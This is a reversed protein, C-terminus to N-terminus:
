RRSPKRHPKKSGSPKKVITMEGEVPEPLPKPDSYGKEKRAKDIEEPTLVTLKIANRSESAVIKELDVPYDEYKTGMEGKIIKDTIFDNYRQVNEPMNPYVTQWYNNLDASGRNNNCEACEGMYNETNNPGGKAKPHIHETTMVATSILRRAISTSDSNRYKSLIKNVGDENLPLEIAKDMLKTTNEKNADEKTINQVGKLFASRNFGKKNNLAVKQASVYNSVKNKEGYISKAVADVEDLVITCEQKYLDAGTKKTSSLIDSISSNPKSPATNMIERSIARENRRFKHFNSSFVDALEQGKAKSAKSVFDNQEKANMMEKGCCACPVNDIQKVVFASTSCPYGKFSPVNQMGFFYNMIAKSGENTKNLIEENNHVPKLSQPITSNKVTSTAAFGVAANSIANVRM